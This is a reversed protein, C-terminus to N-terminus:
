GGEPPPLRLSPRSMNAAFRFCMKSAFFHYTHPPSSVLRRMVRPSTPVTCRLAAPTSFLARMTYHPVHSSRWSRAAPPLGGVRSRRELQIRARPARCPACVREGRTTATECSAARSLTRSASLPRASFFGPRRCKRGGRMSARRAAQVAASARLLPLFVIRHAALEDPAAAPPQPAGAARGNRCGSAAGGPPPAARASAVPGRRPRSPREASHVACALPAAAPASPTL